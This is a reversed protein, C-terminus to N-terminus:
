WLVEGRKLLLLEVLQKLLELVNKTQTVVVQTISRQQLVPDLGMPRREALRVPPLVRCNPPFFHRLYLLHQGTVDNSGGVAWPGRWYDHHPVLITAQPKANVKTLEVRSSNFIGM